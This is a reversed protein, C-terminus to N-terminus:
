KTRDKCLEDNNNEFEYTIYANTIASKSYM